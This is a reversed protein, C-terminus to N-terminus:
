AVALQEDAKKMISALERLVDEPLPAVEHNKLIECAKKAANGELTPMGSAEWDSRRSTREALELDILEGRRLTDVTHQDTLFEGRPGVRAVVDVALSEEDVRIGQVWRRAIAILENDIVLQAPSLTLITEICGAGVVLKGGALVQCLLNQAKQFMTQAGSLGDSVFGIAETPVGFLETGIQCIAAVLLGSEPTGGLAEATRMNGVVPDIFFAQPHGPRATQVLTTNGLEEALTQALTGAITAPSTMGAMSMVPMDMPLGYEVALLIQGALDENLFLPNDPPVMHHVMPREALAERSGRVALMMEIQVRLNELTAAGHVSCKRGCELVARLSHLDSTRGPVDICHQNAVAVINPLADAVKCFNRWDAINSQRYGGTSPDIYGPPGGANRGGIDGDLASVFDYEPTRGHYTFRKPILARKADVLDPPLHVRNTERDVRAGAGALLDQAGKHDIVMGVEDLIRLSAQYIKELEGRTLFRLVPLNMPMDKRYVAHTETRDKGCDGGVPSDM